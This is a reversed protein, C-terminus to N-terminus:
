CAARGSSLSQVSRFMAVSENTKQRRRCKGTHKVSSFVGVLSKRGRGSRLDSWRCDDYIREEVSPSRALIGVCFFLCGNKRTSTKKPPSVAFLTSGLNFSFYEVLRKFTNRLEAKRENAIEKSFRSDMRSGLHIDATHIIKM